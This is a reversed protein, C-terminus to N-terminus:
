FYSRDILISLVLIAVGAEKETEGRLGIYIAPKPSIRFFFTSFYNTALHSGNQNDTSLQFELRTIEMSM